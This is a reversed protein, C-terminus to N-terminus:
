DENDVEPILANFGKETHEKLLYSMRPVLSYYYRTSEITTHGMSKSLYLLKDDFEFGKDMWRNINEVAYHHRLEYATAYSSNVADWLRRFNKQVWSRTHFSDNRGPFFYTRNPYIKEIEGDYTRMLKLLSDHMVIYHQKHGKSYHINLVGEVLDVDSRQLMRAENTRIGSSYLLRFFVPVTIQRSCQEPTRAYPTMSDCEYFFRELEEKSFSHPVYTRKEKRPIKPPTILTLGRERLYRVFSVVVYIRSRCSNNKEYERQSCWVNVMEQTLKNSYPYNSACFRDFLILCPEYSSNNWRDSAKRYKIFSQILPALVSRFETM